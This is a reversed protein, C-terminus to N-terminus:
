VFSARGERTEFRVGGALTYELIGATAAVQIAPIMSSVIAQAVADPADALSTESGNRSANRQGAAARARSRRHASM